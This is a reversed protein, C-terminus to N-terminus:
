RTRVTFSVNLDLQEWWFESLADREDDTLRNKRIASDREQELDDVLDHLEGWLTIGNNNKERIFEFEDVILKKLRNLERKTM